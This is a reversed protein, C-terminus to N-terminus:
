EERNANFSDYTEEVIQKLHEVTPLPEDLVLVDHQLEPPLTVSTCLMVLTRKESGSKFTDRLNWIAQIIPPEKIYLHANSFFVVTKAPAQEIKILADVPQIVAAPDSTFAALAAKGDDNLGIFGRITDWLIFPPPNGNASDIINKVTAAPDATNVAILPTAAMRAAKYQSIFSNPTM